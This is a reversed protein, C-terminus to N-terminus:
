VNENARRKLLAVIERLMTGDLWDPYPKEWVADALTGLKRAVETDNGSCAIIVANSGKARLQIIAESGLMCNVGFHEDILM